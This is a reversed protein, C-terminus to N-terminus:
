GRLIMEVKEFVGSSIQRKHCQGTLYKIVVNVNSEEETIKKVSIGGWVACVSSPAPAM